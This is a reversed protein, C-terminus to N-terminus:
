AALGSQSGSARMEIRLQPRTPLDRLGHGDPHGVAEHGPLTIRRQKAAADQRVLVELEPAAGADPGAAPQTAQGVPPALALDM